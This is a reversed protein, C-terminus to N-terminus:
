RQDPLVSPTGRGESTKNMPYARSYRMCISKYSRTPTAHTVTKGFRALLVCDIFDSPPGGSANKKGHFPDRSRQHVNAAAAFPWHALVPLLTIKIETQLDRLPTCYARVSVGRAIGLCRPVVIDLIQREDCWM